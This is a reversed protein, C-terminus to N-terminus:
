PMGMTRKAEEIVPAARRGCRVQCCSAPTPAPCLPGFAVNLSAALTRSLRSVRPIRLLATPTVPQRAERGGSGAVEVRHGIPYRRVRRRRDGRAHQRGARADTAGAACARTAASSLLREGRQVPQSAAEPGRRNPSRHGALPPPARKVAVGRSAAAAEKAAEGGVLRPLPVFGRMSVIRHRAHCAAAMGGRHSSTQDGGHRAARRRCCRVARATPWTSHRSRSRPPLVQLPRGRRQARARLAVETERGRMPSQEGHASRAAARANKVAPRQRRAPVPAHRRRRAHPRARQQRRPPLPEGGHSTGTASSKSASQRHRGALTPASAPGNRRGRARHGRRGVAADSSVIAPRVGSSRICGDRFVGDAQGETTRQRLSDAM